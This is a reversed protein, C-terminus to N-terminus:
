PSVRQLGMRENYRDTIERKKANQKEMRGQLQDSTIGGKQAERRYGSVTESVERLQADRAGRLNKMAVDAPQAGLKIGGAAAVSQPLSRERGFADTEGTGASQISKWSYSQFLGHEDVAADVAYGAPNPLPRPRSITLFIM